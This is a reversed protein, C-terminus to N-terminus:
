ACVSPLVPARVAMGAAESNKHGVSPGVAAVLDERCLRSAAERVIEEALQSIFRPGTGVRHFLVSFIDAAYISM